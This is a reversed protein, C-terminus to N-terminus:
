IKKPQLDDFNRWISARPFRLRVNGRAVPDTDIAIHVLPNDADSATRNLATAFPSLGAFIEVLIYYVSRGHSEELDELTFPRSLPEAQRHTFHEFHRTDHLPNDERDSEITGNSAGDEVDHSVDTLQPEQEEHHLAQVYSGMM